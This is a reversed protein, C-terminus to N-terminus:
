KPLSVMSVDQRGPLPEFTAYSNALAGCDDEILHKLVDFLQRSAEGGFSLSLDGRKVIMVGDCVCM